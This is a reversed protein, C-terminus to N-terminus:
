LHPMHVEEVVVVAAPPPLHHPAPNRLPTQCDHHPLPSLLLPENNRHLIHVVRPEHLKQLLRLLFVPETLLARDVDRAMHLLEALHGAQDVLFCRRMMVVVMVLEQAELSSSKREYTTLM